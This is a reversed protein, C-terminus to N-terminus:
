TNACKNDLSLSFYKDQHTSLIYPHLARANYWQREFLFIGLLQTGSLRNQYRKQKISVFITMSKQFFWTGMQKLNQSITTVTELTHTHTYSHPDSIGRKVDNDGVRVGVFRGVWVWGWVQLLHKELIIIVDGLLFEVWIRVSLSSKKSYFIDNVYGPPFRRRKQKTRKEM